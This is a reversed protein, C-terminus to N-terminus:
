ASAEWADFNAPETGSESREGEVVGALKSNEQGKDIPVNRIHLFLSWNLKQEDLYQSIVDIPSKRTEKTLQPFHIPKPFEDPHLEYGEAALM